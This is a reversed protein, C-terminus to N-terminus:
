KWPKVKDRYKEPVGGPFHTFHIIGEEDVYYYISFSTSNVKTQSNTFNIYIYPKIKEFKKEGIGKIQKLEELSKFSGHTERYKIIRQALKPGIGPLVELQDFTAKNIDIQTAFISFPYFLFLVFLLPRM